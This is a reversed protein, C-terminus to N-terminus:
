RKCKNIATSVEVMVKTNTEVVDILRNYRREEQKNKQKNEYILYGILSSVIGLLIEVM